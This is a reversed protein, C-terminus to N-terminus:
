VENAAHSVLPGYRARNALKSWLGHQIKPRLEPPPLEYLRQGKRTYAYGQLLGHRGWKIITPRAVGLEAAMEQATHLGQQRLREYRSRLRYARCIKWVLSM